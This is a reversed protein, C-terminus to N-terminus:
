RREIKYVKMKRRFTSLPIDLVRSAQSQNWDNKILANIIKSKEIEIALAKASVENTQNEIIDYPLNDIDIPQSKHLICLREVTNKLERANGPWHYSLLAEMAKETFALTEGPPLYAKAFHNILLSIDDLRRRLPSIEITITNIRYFLDASFKGEEILQHLNKNTAYIFRIDTSITRHSGVMEFKQYEIVRLMKTQLALPMDGIEDLFLTGTDAASFKGIRRQVGTAVGKEIGFLEAEIIDKPLAACNVKVLQRDSRLSLNHIMECLIEKGTGSEGTVLVNANTCAIDPLKQFMSLLEPDNTIFQNTIGASNLDDILQDNTIQIVNFKQALTILLGIFNSLATTFSIDEESFLAPITYHDLYLVGLVKKNYTIPVCLVSKINHMIVSKFNKTRNDSLANSIIVPNSSLAAMRPINQSLESIDSLSQNDCNLFSKIHLMNSEGSYLLLAGREAGAENVAFHLINTLASEYDTVNNLVDAVKYLSDIRGELVNNSKNLTELSRQLRDAFPTNGNNRAISLSQATYKVALRIQNNDHYMGALRRCVLMAPLSNGSTYLVRYMTKLINATEGDDYNEGSLKKLLSLAQFVPVDSKKFTEIRHVLADEMASFPSGYLTLGVLLLGWMSTYVSGNSFLTNIHEFITETNDAKKYIRDFLLETLEIEQLSTINNDSTFLSGARDRFQRFKDGEGRYFAIEMLNQYSKALFGSHEKDHMLQIVLHFSRAAAGYHGAVFEISAYNFQYIVLSIPTDFQLAHSENLWYRARNYDNLRAHCLSLTHFIGQLRNYERTNISLKKANKLSTIAKKYEGSSHYLFALNTQPTVAYDMLNYEQGISMAERYKERAKRYNGRRWFYAGLDNSIRIRGIHDNIEDAIELLSQLQARTQTGKQQLEVIWLKLRHLDIHWRTKPECHALGTEIFQEALKHDSLSLCQFIIFRLQQFYEEGYETMYELSKRGCDLGFSINGHRVALKALRTFFQIRQGVEMTADAGAVYYQFLLLYAKLFKQESDYSDSDSLAHAIAGSTKFSPLEPFEGPLITRYFLLLEEDSLEVHWYDVIREISFSTLLRTMLDFAGTRNAKAFTALDDILEAPIGLIHNDEVLFEHLYQEPDYLVQLRGLLRSIIQQQLLQSNNAAYSGADILNMSHVSDLLMYPRQYQDDATLKESLDVLATDSHSAPTDALCHKLLAGVAYNDSLPTAPLNLFIEPAIHEPAGMIIAKLPTGTEKLFDLDILRLEGSKRHILFNSLKLDGHILGLLHIYDTIHCIKVFSDPYFEWFLKSDLPQWDRTEIYPYEIVVIDKSASRGQATMVAPSKIRQQLKYSTLLTERKVTEDLESNMNIIKLFRKRGTENNTVIWSFSLPNESLYKIPTYKELIPSPSLDFFENRM